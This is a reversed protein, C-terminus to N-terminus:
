EDSEQFLRNPRRAHTLDLLNHPLLVIQLDMAAPAERREGFFDYIRWEREGGRYRYSLHQAFGSSDEDEALSPAVLIDM